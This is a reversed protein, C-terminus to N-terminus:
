EQRLVNRTIYYCLHVFISTAIHILWKRVKQPGGCQVFDISLLMNQALPSNQTTQDVGALDGIHDKVAGTAGTLGGHGIDDGLLGVAGQVFEVGGRCGGSVDLLDHCFQISKHSRVTRQQIQILDLGEIFLLLLAQQFVDFVALDGQDCGSRFIGIEINEVSNQATRGNEFKLLDVRGSSQLSNFPCNGEHFVASCQFCLHFLSRQFVNGTGATTINALGHIRYFNQERRTNRVAFMNGQGKGIGLHNRLLAGKTGVPVSIVEIVQQRRQLLGDTARIRICGAM